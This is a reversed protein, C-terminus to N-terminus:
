ANLYAIRGKSTQLAVVLNFSGIYFDELTELRASIIAQLLM